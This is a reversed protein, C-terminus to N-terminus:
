FRNVEYGGRFVMDIRTLVIFIMTAVIIFMTAVIISITKGGRILLMIFSSRRQTMIRLSSLQEDIESKTM